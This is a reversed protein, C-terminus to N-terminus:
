VKSKELELADTLFEVLPNMRSCTSAFEALFGPACVRRDSLTVVSLFDKRKLDNIFPHEPDYGRPTTRLSEGSTVIGTRRVRAWDASRDVIANRVARLTPADPHWLGAGAFCGGPELHLYYVPAHVRKDRGVQRHPFHIGVHTKYPRKDSSFRTDRYIRFLSGGTAKPIAAFSPAFRQLHPGFDTIFRLSPDRVDREYQEKHALFWERNNHRKVAKLFRFLQVSFHPQKGM